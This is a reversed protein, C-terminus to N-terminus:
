GSKRGIFRYEGVAISGASIVCRKVRPNGRREDTKVCISM